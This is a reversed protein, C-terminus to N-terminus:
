RSSVLTRGSFSELCQRITARYLARLQRENSFRNARHMSILGQGLAALTLAMDIAPRSDLRGNAKAQDIRLFMMAVVPSYGAVFDNPYQRAKSAPLFFAADFLHPKTLAFALFAEMLQKLWEMPDQVRIGRAVKEWAVLGDEMLANLLADKDAFHNYIAMPSMGARRTVKRITIGSVGERELVSRAAALIRDKTM